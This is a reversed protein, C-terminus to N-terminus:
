ERGRNTDREAVRGRERDKDDRAARHRVFTARTVRRIHEVLRVRSPPREVPPKPLVALETASVRTSSRSVAEQLEQKDTCYVTASERARSVSVYFQEKSAAAFSEPGCAVFVRDVTKGQSAHSTTCYGHALHGYNKPVTHGNDLVINGGRDFRAVTHLAGNVLRGKGDAATGNQAIRIRDGAALPLDRREYVDFHRASDLPLAVSKKNTREVLVRGKDDRGIVRAAEGKAFGGKANQHFRVVDGPQYNMPDKREAETFGHSVLQTVTREKGKLVGAAKLGERIRFTVERGEAHTPSVVLASKGERVTSLYDNALRAHREGEAVERISGMSDLRAFGTELDGAALAEVARKYEGHQRRIDGVV